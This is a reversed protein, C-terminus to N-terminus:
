PLVPNEKLVLKMATILRRRMKQNTEKLNEDNPNLELKNDIKNKIEIMKFIKMFADIM